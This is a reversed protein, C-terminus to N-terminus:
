GGSPTSLDPKTTQAVTSQKPTEATKLHGYKNCGEALAASGAFSVFATVALAFLGYRM